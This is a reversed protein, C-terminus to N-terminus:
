NIDINYTFRKANPHARHPFTIRLTDVPSTTHHEFYSTIYNVIPKCYEREFEPSTILGTWSNVSYHEQMGTMFPSDFLLKVRVEIDIKIDLVGADSLFANAGTGRLRKISTTMVPSCEFIVKQSMDMGAYTLFDAIDMEIRGAKKSFNDLAKQVRSMKKNRSDNFAKLDYAHILENVVLSTDQILFDIGRLPPSTLSVILNEEHGFADIWIKTFYLHIAEVDKIDYKTLLINKINEVASIILSGDILDPENLLTLIVGYGYTNATIYLRYNYTGDEFVKGRTYKDLLNIVDSKDLNNAM